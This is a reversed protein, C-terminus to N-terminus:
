LLDTFSMKLIKGGYYDVRPVKPNLESWPGSEGAYKKMSSGKSEIDRPFNNRLDPRNQLLSKHSKSPAQSYAPNILALLLIFISSVRFLIKM